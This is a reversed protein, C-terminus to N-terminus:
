QIGIIINHHQLCLKGFVRVYVLCNVEGNFWTHRGYGERLDQQFQGQYSSGDPWEQRGEGHRKNDVFAGEYCAGNSWRFLGRGCHNQAKNSGEHFAGSTYTQMVKSSDLKFLRDFTRSFKSNM